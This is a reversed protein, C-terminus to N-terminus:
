SALRYEAVITGKKIPLDNTIIQHGDGRLKYVIDALRFCGFQKLAQLPTISKGAQLHALINAKQTM